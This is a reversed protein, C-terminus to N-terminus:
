PTGAGNPTSGGTRTRPRTAHCAYACALAGCVGGAVDAAWDYPDGGSRGPTRLQWAEDAAGFLLAAVAVFLIRKRIRWLPFSGLLAAYLITAGIFFYSFHLIKDFGFIDPAPFDPMTRASLFVLTLGWVTLGLWRLWVPIWALWFAENGRL